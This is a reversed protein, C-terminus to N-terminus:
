TRLKPINPSPEINTIYHHQIYLCQKGLHNSQILPHITAASLSQLMSNLWTSRRSGRKPSLTARLNITDPCGTMPPCSTALCDAHLLSSLCDGLNSMQTGARRGNSYRARRPKESLSIQIFRRRGLKLWRNFIIRWLSMPELNLIQQLNCDVM